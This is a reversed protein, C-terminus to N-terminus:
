EAETPTPAAPAPLVTPAPAAAPEPAPRRRARHTIKEILVFFSPTVFLGVVTSGAMGLVVVVGLIFRSKAGSGSAFLLPLLGFIFALSTMLIPRFRLAAGEVAADTFSKGQELQTKAFEVILIANKSSLGVLMVLGIQSYVDFETGTLYLALFACLAAAPAAGLLVSLPLSWSEYQAALILFVFVLALVFVPTTSPATAQQYSLATWAFSYESGLEHRAVEEVANMAQGSSYGPAATGIIEASRFLNFRNTFEPGASHEISVFSSLPVMAGSKARVWFDDISQATVRFRPEAALYVWWTRGFRNFENIYASGMFAQLTGYVDAVAVGQKLVKDRDVKAFIQPVNPRFTTAVRGIEPRKRVAEILRNAEEGLQLPTGTGARDQLMLDFGGSAGVGQIAPPGFAFVTAAAIGYFRKNLVRVVGEAKTEATKRESWPKLAVFFLGSSTATSRALLNFGAISAYHAVGPTTALINEVERHVAETRQLSAADPLSVNVFLYGQDEEPIFGTPMRSGVLPIAAAIIALLGLSFVLKRVFLRTASVYGLRTREFARNFQAFFRALLGKSPRRPRLLVGCLAPSLSLAMFASILVSIAITLAFQQYMRGTIGGVFAMPIFVAAMSIAIAVVPGSVERMAARTADKPIMGEEIHREVAEVVVIADDVVFGIALVLGFLSLTNVSFRLAPFVLFVGLLSVPVTLIPILTARWTQLFLYVVLIVLLLTEFLTILIERIGETIPLTTDLSVQYEMDPPFRKSLEAMTKKAGNAVALANSGPIQYVAIIAAPRRDYHALQTYSQTGLEIRSVDHLRVVSGDPNERVVIDGFEEPTALRGQARITYTFEQGKPAPEAGVQGSPNVTSQQTVAARLDAFTLGLTKLKDPYVWVRMAYNSAGFQQVQGLGTVRLLADNINITAYNSLFESDYTGKPSYLAFALLPSSVSKQVTLGLAQVDTPLLPTAQTVRNQVLIQDTDINTGVEFDVRMQFTGDSANTSTVYIMKDVGNTQQEIPTAVSQEVTVADAGPYTAQVVIEPPVIDPYQATPLGTLAAGGGLVILIAIVIAMVPRDIFFKGV